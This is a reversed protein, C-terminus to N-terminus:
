KIFFLTEEMFSTNEIELMLNIIFTCHKMVAPQYHYKRDFQVTVKFFVKPFCTFKFCQYIKILKFLRLIILYNLLM